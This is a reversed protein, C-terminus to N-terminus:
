LLSDDQSDHPDIAIAQDPRYRLNEIEHALPLIFEKHVEIAIVSLVEEDITKGELYDTNQIIVLLHKKLELPTIECAKSIRQQRRLKKELRTKTM